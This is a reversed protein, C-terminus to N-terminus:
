QSQFAAHHVKDGPKLRMREAAGGALELVASVPGNSSILAESHPETNAEIHHVRGDAKIFVMDLPIYTNKMWMAAERPRDHVFLMGTNPALETRYMLGLAQQGPTRAVEVALKHTGSATILQLDETQGMVMPGEADNKASGPPSSTGSAGTATSSGTGTEIGTSSKTMLQWGVFGVSVLVAILAAARAARSPSHQESNMAHNQGLRALWELSLIPDLVLRPRM